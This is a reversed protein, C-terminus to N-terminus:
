LLKDPILCFITLLNNSIFSVIPGKKNNYQESILSNHLNKHFVLKLYISAEGVMSQYIDESSHFAFKILMRIVNFSIPCRVM